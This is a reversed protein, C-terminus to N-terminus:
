YAIAFFGPKVENRTYFILKTKTQVADHLTYQLKLSQMYM